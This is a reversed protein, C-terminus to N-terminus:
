AGSADKVCKKTFSTKAAGSLKKDAAQADCATAADKECKKMFSTLAAGSLKKSVAQDHCTPDAIAGGIGFSSLLLAIALRKM